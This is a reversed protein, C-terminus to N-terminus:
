GSPYTGVIGLDQFPQDSNTTGIFICTRPFDQPIRGYSPRYRDVQRTVFSKVVEITSRNVRALEALEVLWKAQLGEGAKGAFLDNGIDDTFWEPNPCLAAIGASKGNGQLGILVPVTDVKCGPRYARAAASLFLVRAVEAHYPTKDCGYHDSFFYEVRNVGDWRVSDLYEVLSSFEDRHAIHLLAARVHDQSWPIQMSEEIEMTLDIVHQDTLPEGDLLIARRFTDYRAFGGPKHLGIWTRSNSACSLPREGKGLIYDPKDLTINDCKTGAEMKATSNGIKVRPGRPRPEYVQTCDDIAKDITRQRYDPRNRWKDRQGLASRAFVAEIRNFDHGALIGAHEGPGHRSGLASLYGALSGQDFLAVFKAGQKSRRAKEILEEDSVDVPMSTRGTANAKITGDDPFM